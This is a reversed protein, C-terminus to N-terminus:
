AAENRLQSIEDAYVGDDIILLQGKGLGLECRHYSFHAPCVYGWQGNSVMADAVAYVDDATMKCLSCLPRTTLNTTETHAMRMGRPQYGNRLQSVPQHRDNM